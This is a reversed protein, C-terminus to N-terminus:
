VAEKNLLIQKSTETSGNSWDSNPSCNVRREALLFSATRNSMAAILILDLYPLKSEKVNPDEVEKSMGVVRAILVRFLLLSPTIVLHTLSTSCPQKAGSTNLVNPPIPGVARTMCTYM